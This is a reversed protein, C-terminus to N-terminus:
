LITVVGPVQKGSEDVSRERLTWDGTEMHSVSLVIVLSIFFHTVDCSAKEGDGLNAIM